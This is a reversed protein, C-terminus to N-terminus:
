VDLWLHQLCEAATARRQPIFQLMQHLFDSFVAAETLPFAYKELLVHDLGWPRLTVIHRLEGKVNFFDKSFKGSLAFPVPIGGLLEIIHAIHDEERSFTKGARPDFLYEGTALEFAMCATSWVDAPPGYGAGLIAEVARYQRTQILDTIHKYTWCGNGLDGIKVQIKEASKAELLNLGPAHARVLDSAGLPSHGDRQQAVALQHLHQQDICLLINEPKIDTHIIRCKTHLYNLGQLVQQIIKKVCAIPLGQRKSRLIWQHLNDGLLEFVLCMYISLIHLDNGGVLSFNDLLQIVREKEVDSSRRGRVCRLFQIEDQAAETFGEGSRVLKTAVFRKERVDWCTWVTSFSGSGLNGIVQYRRNFVDGLKVPHYRGTCFKGSDEQEAPQDPKSRHGQSTLEQGLVERKNGGSQGNEVHLKLEEGNPLM